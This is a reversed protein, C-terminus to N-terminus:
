SEGFHLECSGTNGQYFKLCVCNCDKFNILPNNITRHQITWSEDRHLEVWRHYFNLSFKTFTKNEFYTLNCDKFKPVFYETTGDNFSTARFSFVVATKSLSWFRKITRHVWLVTARLSFMIVTELITTTYNFLQLNVM